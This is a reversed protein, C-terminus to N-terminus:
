KSVPPPAIETGPFYQQQNSILPPQVIVDVPFTQWERHFNQKDSVPTAPIHERRGVVPMKGSSPFYHRGAWPQLWHARIEVGPEFDYVVFPEAHVPGAWAGELTNGLDAARAPASFLAAVIMLSAFAIRLMPHEPADPVHASEIRYSNVPPQIRRTVNVADRVQFARSALV